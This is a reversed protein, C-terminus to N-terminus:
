TRKSIKPSFSNVTLYVIIFYLLLISEYVSSHLLFPLLPLFEFQIQDM